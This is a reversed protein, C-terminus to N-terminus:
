TPEGRTTPPMDGISRAYENRSDTESAPLTYHMQLYIFVVRRGKRKQNEVFHPGVNAYLMPNGLQDLLIDGRDDVVGYFPGTIRM